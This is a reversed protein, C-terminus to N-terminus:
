ALVERIKHSLENLGFPKQIFGQCGQDLIEEAQGDISYGSSLMVKIDPNIAKLQKFTDNGNMDSMIM